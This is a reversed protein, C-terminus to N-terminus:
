KWYIGQETLIGDLPVDLETVKLEQIAQAAYALGLLRPRRWRLSKGFTRDYYGKGMGLRNLKSDFAVLPMVVLDLMSPAILDRHDYPPELIDYRNPKLNPQGPKFSQFLLRTTEWPRIFNSVLPLYSHKGQNEAMECSKAPNLEGDASIYFAIHKSRLFTPDTALTSCVCQAAYQQYDVSINRRASRAAKRIQRTTAQGSETLFSPSLHAGFHDIKGQSHAPKYM